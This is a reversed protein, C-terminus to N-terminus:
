QVRLEPFDALIPSIDKKNVGGWLIMYLGDKDIKVHEIIELICEIIEKTNEVYTSQPRYFALM